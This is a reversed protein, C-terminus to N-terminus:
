LDTSFYSYKDDERGRREAERRREEERRQREEEKKWDDYRKEIWADMKDGVSRKQMPDLDERRAEQRKQAEKKWEDATMTQNNNEDVGIKSYEEALEKKMIDSQYDNVDKGIEQLSMGIKQMSKYWGGDGAGDEIMNAFAKGLMRAVDPSRAPGKSARATGSHTPRAAETAIRYNGIAM